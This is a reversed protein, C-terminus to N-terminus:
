SHWGEIMKVSLRMGLLESGYTFAEITNQRKSFWLVPARNVFILIGSHSRRAERCGAHDADVFCTMVVDSGRPTPMHKQPIVEAADPYFESGDCKVFREGRFTPVTDDFAM